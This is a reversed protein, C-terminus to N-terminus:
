DHTGHCQGHVKHTDCSYSYTCVCFIQKADKCCAYKCRLCMWDERCTCDNSYPFIEGDYGVKVGSVGAFRKWRLDTQVKMKLCFDETHKGVENCFSCTYKCYRSNHGVVKCVSCTPPARKPKPALKEQAILEGIWYDVEIGKSSDVIWVRDRSDWKGGFQSKITERHPFTNGRIFFKGDPANTTSIFISSMISYKSCM